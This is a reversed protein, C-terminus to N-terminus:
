HRVYVQATALGWGLKSNSVTILIITPLVSRALLVLIGIALVVLPVVFATVVVLTVPGHCVVCVFAAKAIALSLLGHSAVSVVAATAIALGLLGPSAVSVFAATAITLSLLGHSVVTVFATTVIVLSVLWGPVVGLVWGRPDHPLLHVVVGVAAVVHGPAHAYDVNSVHLHVGVHVPVHVAERRHRVPGHQRLHRQLLDQDQQVNHEGVDGLLANHLGLVQLGCEVLARRGGVPAAPQLLQLLLHVHRGLLGLASDLQLLLQRGHRQAVHGEVLGKHGRLIVAAVEAARLRRRLIIGERRELADAAAHHGPPLVGQLNHIHRVNKNHGDTDRM